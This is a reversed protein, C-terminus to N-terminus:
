LKGREVAIDVYADAITAPPTYIDEPPKKVLVLAQNSCGFTCAGCGICRDYDITATDNSLQIAGMQCRALCEECGGCQAPDVEIYYNSKAARAPKPQMKLSLLMNCCDGCCMCVAGPKQGAGLQLVLGTKSLTEKVITKAEPADIYRGIEREVFYDAHSGFYFCTELPKGCKNGVLRGWTRCVCNLIAIKKQNDFLAEVDEYPAIPWETILKKDVPITRMPPHKFGMITPGFAENFYEKIDRAVAENLQNVQYEFIGVVFPVAAYKVSDPRKQRFLLGKLAMTKLSTSINAVDRGLRAAVDEPKELFPTLALFLEAEIESFLQKLIRIEIKSRTEPFGTAMDDLKQRLAEYINVM